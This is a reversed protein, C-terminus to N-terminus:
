GIDSFPLISIDLFNLPDVYKKDRFLEFHLHPGTTLYGAGPTGYEGGTSAFVQGKKIFDFQEVRVESLHGYVSVFGQPHKIAVFSYGDNVPPEVHIVYGSMPARIPTAQDAPIDIANHDAGFDSKYEGDKFYASISRSPIIPWSFADGAINDIATLQSESYIIKNLNLCKESLNKLELSAESTDVFECSHKDLLQKQINRFKIKQQISKINISKELKVKQQVIKEYEAQKGKSSELLRTKFAQKDQLISREIIESKRLSKLSKEDQELTKRESYLNKVLGRHEQVISAGALQVLSKFYLDDIVESMDQNNLLINKLNDIDGDDYLTNSKKYIYVMYELLVENNEDIKKTLDSMKQSTLQISKKTTVINNNIDVITDNSGQIDEDLQALTSELSQIVDGINEKKQQVKQKQTSVRSSVSDYISLRRSINLIGAEQEDLLDTDSEFLLQYQQRTFNELIVKKQGSSLGHVSLYTACLAAVGMAYIIKRIAMFLLYTISIFRSYFVRPVRDVYWSGAM